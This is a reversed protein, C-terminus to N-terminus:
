RDGATSFNWAFSVWPLPLLPVDGAGTVVLVIALDVAFRPGFLRVGGSPVAFFPGDWPGGEPIWMLWNETILASSPGLRSTASITSAYFGVEGFSFLFAGGGAITLHRDYGGFTANGFLFGVADADVLFAQAGLGARFSEGLPASAKAGIMGVPSETFLLPLVTGAEVDLFDTLGYGVSSIVLARQALYGNGAGLNFATPSYLTRSRNPDPGFAGGPSAPSVSRLVQAPLVLPTGDGLVLLIREPGAEVLKAHLVQGDSLVVTVDQMPAPETAATAEPVPAPAEAVPVEPPPPPVDDM